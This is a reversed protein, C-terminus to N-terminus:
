SRILLVVSCFYCRRTVQVHEFRELIPSQFVHRYSELHDHQPELWNLEMKCVSGERVEKVEFDRLALPSIPASYVFGHIM